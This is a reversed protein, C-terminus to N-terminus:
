GYKLKIIGKKNVNIFFFLNDRAPGFTMKVASKLWFTDMKAGCQFGKTGIKNWRPVNAGLGYTISVISSKELYSKQEPAPVHQL